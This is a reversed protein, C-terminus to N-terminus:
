DRARLQRLGPLGAEGAPVPDADAPHAGGFVEHVGLTAATTQAIRTPDTLPALEILWVGDPYRDLRGKAVEIALRTKGCGGTGTLTLLPTSELHQLVDSMSQERGVFSTWQIPLNHPVMPVPSNAPRQSREDPRPAPRNRRRPIPQAALTLRARQESVLELAQALAELTERLPLRTGSELAQVSRLGLGVREALAEQTLSAALRQQRLLRGFTRPENTTGM